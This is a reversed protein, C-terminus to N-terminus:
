VGERSQHHIPHHYMGSVASGSGHAALDIHRFDCFTACASVASVISFSSAASM